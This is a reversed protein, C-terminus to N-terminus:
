GGLSAAGNICIEYCNIKVAHPLIGINRVKGLKSFIFTPKHSRWATQTDTFRGRVLKQIRSDIEIFSPIYSYTKGGSGMEDTQTDTNIDGRGYSPLPENFV